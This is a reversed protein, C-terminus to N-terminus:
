ISNFHEVIELLIEPSIGVSLIKKLDNVIFMNSVSLCKDFSKTEIFKNLLAIKDQKSANQWFAISTEM